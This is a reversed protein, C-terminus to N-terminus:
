GFIEVIAQCFKKICLIATSKGIRINKDTSDASTGYALMRFASRVKQLTSLGLRGLGDKKQM